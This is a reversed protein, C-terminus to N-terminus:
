EISALSFNKPKKKVQAILDRLSNMWTDFQPRDPARMLIEEEDGIRLNFAFPKGAKKQSEPAVGLKSLPILRTPNSFNEEEFVLIGVNTLVYFSSEWNDDSFMDKWFAVFGLKKKFLYGQAACNVLGQNQERQKELVIDRFNFSVPKRDVVMAIADSFEVSLWYAELEQIFRIMLGM